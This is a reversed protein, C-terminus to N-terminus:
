SFPNLERAIGSKVPYRFVRKRVGSNILEYDEQRFSEDIWQRLVEKHGEIMVDIKLKNPPSEMHPHLSYPYDLYSNVLKAQVPNRLVYKYVNQYYNNNSVVSWHYRKGWLSDILGARSLIKRASQKMLKYMVRDINSEPTQIILHFHNPMLVFAFLTFNDAEQIVRLQKIFIRWAEKLPIPFPHRRHVRATIHYPYSNTRILRGRPM